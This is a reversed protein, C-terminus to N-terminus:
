AVVGEPAGGAATDEQGFQQAGLPIDVVFSRYPAVVVARRTKDLQPGPPGARYVPPWLSGRGVFNM